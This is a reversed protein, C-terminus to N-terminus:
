KSSREYRGNFTVNMGHPAQFGEEKVLLGGDQYVIEIRYKQEPEKSYVICNERLASVFDLEGIHPGYKHKTGWLATGIVKVQESDLRTIEIEASSNSSEWFFRGEISPPIVSTDGLTVPQKWAYDIINYLEERYTKVEAITPGKSQRTSSDFMDHHELCLYALNDLSDNSSNQDLHAIQGKKIDIDRHLGYCICCRRRSRVVVEKVRDETLRKRKAM